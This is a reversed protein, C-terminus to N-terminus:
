DDLARNTLFGCGCRALLTSGDFGIGRIRGTTIAAQNQLLPNRSKM